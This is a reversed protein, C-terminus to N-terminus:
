VGSVPLLVKLALDGDSTRLKALESRGGVRTLRFEEVMALTLTREPNM